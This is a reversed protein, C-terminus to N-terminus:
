GRTPGNLSPAQWSCHKSDGRNRGILLSSGASSSSSRPTGGVVVAAVAGDVGAPGPPDGPCEPKAEAEGLDVYGPEVVICSEALVAVNRVAALV